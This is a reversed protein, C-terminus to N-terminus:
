RARCDPKWRGKCFAEIMMEKEEKCYQQQQKGTQARVEGITDIAGDYEKELEAIRADKRVSEPALRAEARAEGVLYGAVAVLALVTVAPLTGITM